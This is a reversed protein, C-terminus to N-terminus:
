DICIVFRVLMCVFKQCTQIGIAETSASADVHFIIHSVQKQRLNCCGFESVWPETTWSKLSNSSSGLTSIYIRAREINANHVKAFSIQLVAYSKAIKIEVAFIITLYINVALKLNEM